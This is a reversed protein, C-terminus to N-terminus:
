APPAWPTPDAPEARGAAGGPPGLIARRIVYRVAMALFALVFLALAFLPLLGTFQWLVLLDPVPDFPTEATGALHPLARVLLLAVDLGLVIGGPGLVVGAGLLAQALARGPFQRFPQTGRILGRPELLRTAGIGAGLSLLATATVLGAWAVTEGFTVWSAFGGGLGLLLLASGILGAGLRDGARWATGVQFGAVALTAALMGLLFLPSLESILFAQLGAEPIAHEVNPGLAALAGSQAGILGVLTCALWVPFWSLRVPGRPLSRSRGLAALTLGGVAGGFVALGMSGVPAVVMCEILGSALNRVMVADSGSGAMAAARVDATRAIALWTQLVCVAPLLTALLGVRAGDIATADKRVLFLALPALVIGGLAVVLGLPLGALGLAGASWGDVFLATGSWVLAVVLGAATVGGSLLTVLADKWHM